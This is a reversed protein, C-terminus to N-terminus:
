RLNHHERRQADQHRSPQTQGFLVPVGLALSQHAMPTVSACGWVCLQRDRRWGARRPVAPPGTPAHPRVPGPGLQVCVDRVATTVRGGSCRSHGPECEETPCGALAAGGRRSSRHRQVAAPALPHPRPPRFVRAPACHKRHPHPVLAGDATKYPCPVCFICRQIKSIAWRSKDLFWRTRPNILTTSTADLPSHPTMKVDQSRSKKPSRTPALAWWRGERKDARARAGGRPPSQRKNKRSYSFDLFDLFLLV